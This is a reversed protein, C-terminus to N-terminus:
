NIEDTTFPGRTILGDNFLSDKRFVAKCYARVDFGPDLHDSSLDNHGIVQGGPYKRYFASVLGEFSDIQSRTLSAASKYQTADKAGSAINLGGVFIVAISLNDHLTNTHQAQTNVPVGRQITGDRRIVYHYSIGNQMKDLDEASIDKNTYTETWHVVVETVDRKINKFEAFLEEQSDIYGFKDDPGVPYDYEAKDINKRDQIPTQSDIKPISGLVIPVQSAQGDVFIGFVQAGSLIKATLGLGSVGEETGPLVVQAWPLHHQPIDDTSPSHIGRIRVQVRGEYGTPPTHSVVTGIFWRTEDGYFNTNIAKM